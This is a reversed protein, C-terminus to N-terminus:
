INISNLIQTLLEHAILETAQNLRNNINEDGLPQSLTGPKGAYGVKDIKTKIAWAAKDSIGKERCWQQIRQIMPPNGPIPNKSTPGRGKEVIQLYGPIQLQQDGNNIVKIQEITQSSTIGKSQLSNILDTKLTTILTTLIQATQNM